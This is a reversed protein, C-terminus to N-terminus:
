YTEYEIIDELTPITHDRQFEPRDDVKERKIALLEDVSKLANAREKYNCYGHMECIVCYTNNPVDEYFMCKHCDVKRM